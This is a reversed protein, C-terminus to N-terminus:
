LIPQQHPDLSAFSHGIKQISQSRFNNHPSFIARSCHSGGGFFFANIKELIKRWTGLSTSLQTAFNQHMPGLTEFKSIKTFINKMSMKRGDDISGYM